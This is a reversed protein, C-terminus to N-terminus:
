KKWVKIWGMKIWLKLDSYYFLKKSPLKYLLIEIQKKRTMNLGVAFSIEAFVGPGIYGKIGNKDENAIFHVETKELAKYFNKHVTPWKKYFSDKKISVPWDIIEHGISQWYCVWDKMKKDLSASGSIVIKKTKNKRKM